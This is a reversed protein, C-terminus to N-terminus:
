SNMGRFAARCEFVSVFIGSMNLLIIEVVSIEGSKTDIISFM